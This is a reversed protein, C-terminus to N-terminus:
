IQREKYNGVNNNEEEYKNKSTSDKSHLLITLLVFCSILFALFLMCVGFMMSLPSKLQKETTERNM